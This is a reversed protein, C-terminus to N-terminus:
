NYLAQLDIRMQNTRLYYTAYNNQTVAAACIAYTHNEVERLVLGNQVVAVLCIEETQEQVYRLANGNREVALLCIMRTQNEIYELILPNEQVAREPDTQALIRLEARTM